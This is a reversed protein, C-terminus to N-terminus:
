LSVCTTTIFNVVGSIADAGYLASTAGKIVEVQRLNLPPLQTLGFGASLGGFNPIGDSLIQTYRGNLGQIRLNATNSTASTTQMSDREAQAPAFLVVAQPSVRLSDLPEQSLTPADNLVLFTTTIVGYRFLKLLSIITNM